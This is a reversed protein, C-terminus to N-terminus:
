SILFNVFPKHELLIKWDDPLSKYITQMSDMYWSLTRSFNQQGPFNGGDALWVTLGKSGLTIGNNICDINLEVAKQRKSQDSNTLSGFKYSHKNNAQDQFTNSNVVDFKLGYNAAHDKM